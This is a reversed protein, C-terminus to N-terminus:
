KGCKKRSKQSKKRSMKRWKPEYVCFFDRFISRIFNHFFDCFIDHFFLFSLTIKFPVLFAGYNQSLQLLNNIVRISYNHTSTTSLVRTQTQDRFKLNESLERVNERVKYAAWIHVHLKKVTPLHKNWLCIIGINM